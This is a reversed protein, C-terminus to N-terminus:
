HMFFPMTTIGRGIYKIRRSVDRIVIVSDKQKNMYTIPAGCKKIAHDMSIKIVSLPHLVSLKGDYYLQFFDFDFRGIYQINDTDIITTADADGRLIYKEVRRKSATNIQSKKTGSAYTGPIDRLINKFRRWNSPDIIHLPNNCAYRLEWGTDPSIDFLIDVDGTCNASNFLCHLLFGGVIVGGSECISRIFESPLHLSMTTNIDRSGADTLRFVRAYARALTIRYILPLSDYILVIIDDPLSNM